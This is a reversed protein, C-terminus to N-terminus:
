VFMAESGRRAFAAAPRTVWRDLGITAIAVAALAVTTSVAVPALGDLAAHVGWLLPLHVLYASYSLEGLKRAVSARGRAAPRDRMVASAVVVGFIAAIAVLGFGSGANSLVRALISAVVLWYAALGLFVRPLNALWAARQAVQSALMVGVILGDPRVAWWFQGAPRASVAGLALFALGSLTLARPPLLVLLPALAYFQMEVALSWFHSAVLSDGCSTLGAWCDGWHFDAYFGVAAALDSLSAGHAGSAGQMAGIAAVTAWAPLAIRIARRIWFAAAGHWFNEPARAFMLTANQFIVFGSIVFFLDVGAAGIPFDPVYDGIGIELASQHAHAIMVALAAAARLLHVWLVMGKTGGGLRLRAGYHQPPL